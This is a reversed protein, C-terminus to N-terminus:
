EESSLIAPDRLLQEVMARGNPQLAMAALEPMMSRMRAAAQMRGDSPGGVYGHPHEDIDVREFSGNPPVLRASSGQSGISVDARAAPNSNM